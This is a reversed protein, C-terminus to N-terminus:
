AERLLVLGIELYADEFTCFFTIKLSGILSKVKDFSASTKVFIVDVADADSYFFLARVDFQIKLVFDVFDTIPEINGISSADQGLLLGVFQTVKDQLSIKGLDFIEFLVQSVM